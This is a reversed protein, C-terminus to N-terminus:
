QPPRMNSFRLTTQYYQEATADARYCDKLTASATITIDGHLDVSTIPLGASGLTNTVPRAPDTLDVWALNSFSNINWNYIDVDGIISIPMTNDWIAYINPSTMAAHLVQREAATWRARVAVTTARHDATLAQAPGGNLNLIAQHRAQLEAVENSYVGSQWLKFKRWESDPYKASFDDWDLWEDSVEDPDTLDFLARSASDSTAYFGICGAIQSLRATKNYGARWYLPRADALYGTNYLENTFAVFDCAVTQVIKSTKTAGGTSKIPTHFTQGVIGPGSFYIPMFGPVTVGDISLGNFIIKSDTYGSGGDIWKDVSIEFKHQGDYGGAQTLAGYIYNTATAYDLRIEIKANNRYSAIGSFGNAPSYMTPARWFDNTTITEVFNTTPPDFIWEDISVSCTAVSGSVANMTVPISSSGMYRAEAEQYINLAGTTTTQPLTDWLYQRNEARTELFKEAQCIAGLFARDLRRTENTLHEFEAGPWGWGVDSGVVDVARVPTNTRILADVLDGGESVIDGGWCSTARGSIVTQLWERDTGGVEARQTFLSDGKCSGYLPVATNWAALTVPSDNIFPHKNGWSMTIPPMTEGVMESLRESGYRLWLTPYRIAMSLGPREPNSCPGFYDVIRTTNTLVEVGNDYGGLLREEDVYKREWYGDIASAIAAVYNTTYRLYETGGVGQIYTGYPIWASTLGPAASTGRVTAWRPPLTCVTNSVTVLQGHSLFAAFAALAAFIGRRTM